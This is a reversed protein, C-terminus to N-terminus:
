LHELNQPNISWCWPSSGGGHAKGYTSRYMYNHWGISLDTCRRGHYGGHTHEHSHSTFVGQSHNAPTPDDLVETTHGALETALVPAKLFTGLYPLALSKVVM